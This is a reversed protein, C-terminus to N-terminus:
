SGRLKMILDSTLSIFYLNTCAYSQPNHKETFAGEVKVATIYVYNISKINRGMREAECFRLALLHNLSMLTMKTKFYSM